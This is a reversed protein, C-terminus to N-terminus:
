PTNRTGYAVVYDQVGWGTTTGDTVQIWNLSNARAPGALVRVVKGVPLTTIFDKDFGAEKSVDLGAPRVIKVYIGPRILASSPLL